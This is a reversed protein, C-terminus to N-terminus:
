GYRDGTLGSALIDIANPLLTSVGHCWFYAVEHTFTLRLGQGFGSQTKGGARREAGNHMRESLRNHKISHDFKMSMICRSKKMRMENNSYLIAYETRVDVM